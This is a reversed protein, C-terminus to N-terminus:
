YSIVQCKRSKNPITTYSNILVTYYNCLQKCLLVCHCNRTIYIKALDMNIPNLMVTIKLRDGNTLTNVKLVQKTNSDLALARCNYIRIGQAILQRILTGEIVAM